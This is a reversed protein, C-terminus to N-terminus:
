LPRCGVTVADGRPPTPLLPLRVPDDTAFAFEIRGHQSALRSPFPSAWVQAFLFGMVSFLYTDFRDHPAAPHNSVSPEPPISCTFRPSRRPALLLFSELTGGEALLLVPWPTAGGVCSDSCEYYRHLRTIGPSRLPAPLHLRSTRGMRFSVSLIAKHSFGGSLTRVSILAPRVAPGSPVSASPGVLRSGRLKYSVEHRQVSLGERTLGGVPSGSAPFRCTRNPPLPYRFWDVSGVGILLGRRKPFIRLHPPRLM